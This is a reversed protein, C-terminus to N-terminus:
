RRVSVPVTITGTAVQPLRQSTTVEASPAPQMPDTGSFSLSVALRDNTPATRLQQLTNDLSTNPDSSPCGEPTFLCSPTGPVPSVPLTGGTVSLVGASGATVRPVTVAQEVTRLASSQYPQLTTRVRVRDGTKVRLPGTKWAGGNVSTTASVVRLQEFRPTVVADLSVSRITVKEYPNNLLRDLTLGLDTAPQFVADVPSAWRNAHSVTFSRGGGRLGEVRWTTSVSGEGIRDYVADFGAFVGYMAMAPLFDPDTVRTEGNRGQPSGALRISTRVPISPPATGLTARVGAGRDQDVKGVLPGPNALKYSGFTDDKIITVATADHAGYSSQGALLFPHGFALAKTGCVATTTGIAVMSVDGTALSAAFNGGARLTSTAVPGSPAAAAGAAHPLIPLEAQETAARLDNLRRPTLGNVAVPTVLRDLVRGASAPLAGELAGAPVTVSSPLAAASATAGAPQGLLRYMDQAPTIGAIPSPATSFGYGVAGLLKGDVYVPSGSMGAWFGGGQGIVSRGPLDSAEVLILDRGPGLADTLTGLVKVAFAEPVRGTTVTYGTGQQGIQAQAPPYAAPCAPAAGVPAPAASAPAAGSLATILGGVAALVAVSRRTSSM